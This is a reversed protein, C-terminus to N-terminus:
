TYTFGQRLTVTPSGPVTVAVDVPGANAAAPIDVSLSTPDNVVVRPSAATGFLVTTGSVFGTGTITVTGGGAIPSDAPNVALVTVGSVLTPKDAAPPVETFIAEFIKKLKEYGQSSFLGVLASLGIIWLRNSPNQSTILGGNVCLFFICALATGTLPRFAYMPVWSWKLERNGVYWYLSRVSSLTGGLAGALLVLLLIAQQGVCPKYTFVASPSQGTSAEDQASVDVAGEAHSPNRALLATPTLYTIEKAPEEGFRVQTKETFDMGSIEVLM